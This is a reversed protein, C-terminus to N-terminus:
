RWPSAAVVDAGNDFGKILAKSAVGHASIIKGLSQLIEGQWIMADASQALRGAEHNITVVRAADDAIGFMLVKVKATAKQMSAIADAEESGPTIEAM